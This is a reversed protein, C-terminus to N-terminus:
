LIHAIVIESPAGSLIDPAGKLIGYKSNNPLYPM